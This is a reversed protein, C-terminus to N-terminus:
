VEIKRGTFFKITKKKVVLNRNLCYYGEFFFYFQMDQLIVDDVGINFNM